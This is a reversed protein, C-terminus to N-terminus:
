TRLTVADRASIWFHLVLHKEPLPTSREEEIKEFHCGLRAVPESQVYAVPERVFAQPLANERSGFSKCYFLLSDRRHTFMYHTCGTDLYTEKYMHTHIYRNAYVYICLCMYVYICIYIYIYVNVNVYHVTFPDVSAVFFCPGRVKGWLAARIDFPTGGRCWRLHVDEDLLQGCSM